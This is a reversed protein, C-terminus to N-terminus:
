AAKSCSSGPRHVPIVIRYIKINWMKEDMGGTKQKAMEKQMQALM